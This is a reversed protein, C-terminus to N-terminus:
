LGKGPIIKDLVPLDPCKEYMMKQLEDKSAKIDVGGVKSIILIMNTPRTVRCLKGEFVENTDLSFQSYETEEESENIEVSDASQIGDDEKIECNSSTSHLINDNEVYALDNDNEVENFTNQVEESNINDNEVCTLDNINEVKYSSNQVGSNNEVNYSSSHTSINGNSETEVRYFSNQVGSNNEVNHISKDGNSETEYSSYQVSSSDENFNQYFLEESQRTEDITPHYSEIAESEDPINIKPAVEFDKLEIYGSNVYDFFAQKSSVLYQCIDQKFENKM